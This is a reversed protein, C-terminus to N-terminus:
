KTVVTVVEGGRKVLFTVPADKELSKWYKMVSLARSGLIERDNVQLIEDDVKLQCTDSPTAPKVSAVTLRDLIPNLAFGSTEPSFGVSCSAARAPLSCLALALGALVIGTKRGMLVGETIVLGVALRM